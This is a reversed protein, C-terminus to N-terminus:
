PLSAHEEGTPEYRLAIGWRRLPNLSCVCVENLGGALDLSSVVGVLQKSISM